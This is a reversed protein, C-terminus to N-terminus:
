ALSRCKSPAVSCLNPAAASTSTVLGPPLPPKQAAQVSGRRRTPALGDKGVGGHRAPLRLQHLEDHGGETTAAVDEKGDVGAAADELEEEYQAPVPLPLPQSAGVVEDPNAAHRPIGDLKGTRLQLPHCSRKTSLEIRLSPVDVECHRPM